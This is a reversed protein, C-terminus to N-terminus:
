CLIVWEKKERSLEIWTTSSKATRGSGSRTSKPSTAMQDRRAWVEQMMTKASQFCHSGTKRHAREMRALLAQRRPGTNAECGAIFTPWATGPGQLNQQALSLDFNQLANIVDDVHSQLILANVDRIRRYFFIVLASNLARLMYQAPPLTHSEDAVNNNSAFTCVMDELRAMRKNLSRELHSDHKLMEKVNALRTTQSLLSLWTEPIGYIQLYMTDSYPRPDQLHIDHLGIEPEKPDEMDTESYEDAQEVRLFDDLRTNHATQPRPAPPMALLNVAKEEHLVYTSESVIRAWTYMHHMLRARRSIQRKALGRLRLLREADIMYCRADRQHGAMITYALMSMLAMLQDKYKAKNPGQLEGQLSKQLHEKAKRGARSSLGHWYSAKNLEADSLTTALHHASCALLSYLNAANAHKVSRGLYTIDAHTQVAAAVNLIKYPSKTNFPLAAIAEIVHSDFHKILLQAENGLGMDDINTLPLCSSSIPEVPAPQLSTSQADTLNLTTSPEVGFNDPQQSLWNEFDLDFLDSWQLCDPLSILADLTSPTNILQPSPDFEPMPIDTDVDELEAISTDPANGSAPRDLLTSAQPAHAFDLVGFPGVALGGPQVKSGDQTWSDIEALTTVVSRSEVQETLQTSM